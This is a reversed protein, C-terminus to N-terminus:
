FHRAAPHRTSSAEADKRGGMAPDSDHLKWGQPRRAADQKEIAARQSEKTNGYIAQIEMTIDQVYQQHDLDARSRILSPQSKKTQAPMNMLEPLEDDEVGAEKLFERRKLFTQHELKAMNKMATWQPDARHEAKEKEIAEEEKREAERRARMNAIDEETIRCGDENSESGESEEPGSQPM